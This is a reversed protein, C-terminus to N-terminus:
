IQSYTSLEGLKVSLRCDVSVTVILIHAEGGTRTKPDPRYEPLNALCDLVNFLVFVYYELVTVLTVDAM